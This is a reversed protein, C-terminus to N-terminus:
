PSDRATIEKLPISSIYGWTTIGAPLVGLWRFSFTYKDQTHELGTSYVSNACRHEKSERTSRSINCGRCFIYRLYDYKPLNFFLWGSM